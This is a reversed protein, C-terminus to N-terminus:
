TAVPGDNYYWNHNRVQIIQMLLILLIICYEINRYASSTSTMPPSQYVIAGKRIHRGDEKRCPFKSSVTQKEVTSGIGMCPKYLFLFMSVGNIHTHFLYWTYLKWVIGFMEPGLFEWHFFGRLEAMDGTPRWFRGNYSESRLHLQSAGLEPLLRQKAAQTSMSGWADKKQVLIMLMLLAIAM